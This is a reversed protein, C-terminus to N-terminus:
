SKSTMAPNLRMRIIENADAADELAEGAVVDTATDVNMALGNASPRILAPVTIAEGAEVQVITGPQLDIPEGSLAHNTDDFRRNSGSSVGVVVSTAASTERGENRDNVMILRFPLVDADARLAPTFQGIM